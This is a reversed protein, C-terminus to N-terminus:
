FQATPQPNNLEPNSITTDVGDTDIIVNFIGNIGVVGIEIGNGMNIKGQTSWDPQNNQGTSVASSQSISNVNIQNFIISVPM